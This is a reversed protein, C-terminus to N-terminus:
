LEPQKGQLGGRQWRQRQLKGEQKLFILTETPSSAKKGAHEWSLMQPTSIYNDGGPAFLAILAEMIVNGSDGLHRAQNIYSCRECVTNM